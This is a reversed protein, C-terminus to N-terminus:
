IEMSEIFAKIIIKWNSIIKERAIRIEDVQKTISNESGEIRKLQDEFLKNTKNFQTDRWDYFDKIAKNNDKNNQNKSIEWEIKILKKIIQGVFIFSEPDTLYINSSFDSVKFPIGRYKDNFSTSVLIGYKSKQSAMDDILKKEWNNSWEANKVEYVIRGISDDKNKIIQLYDAKKAGSTIKEIIDDEFAKRLEGEVEHEFNEGKMKNQIVKQQINAKELETIQEKYKTELISKNKLYESELKQKELDLKQQFSNLENQKNNLKIEIDNIKKNSELELQQKQIELKKEFTNLDNIKDNLKIQLEKVENNVKTLDINANRTLEIKQKEFERNLELEISPKLNASLKEEIQQKFFEERQAVLSDLVKISKADQTLSNYNINKHCYPCELFNEM